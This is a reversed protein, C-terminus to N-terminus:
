QAIGNGDTIPRLGEVFDTYDYSPHFQVFGVREDFIKKEKDTLNEFDYNDLVMKSAIQKALYTKGTGPAGTFVINQNKKLIEIYNNNNNM